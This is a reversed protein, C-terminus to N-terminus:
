KEIHKLRVATSGTFSIKGVDMHESLAAGAKPGLGPVINVVGPPFGAKLDMHWLTLMSVYSLLM